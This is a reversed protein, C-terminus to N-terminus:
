KLKILQFRSGVGIANTQNASVRISTISTSTFTSTGYRADLILSSVGYQRNTKSQFVFFDNNTLKINTIGFTKTANVARIFTSNNSRASTASTGDTILSQSYYNAGTNNSNIFLQYNSAGGTANDINNVLMYESDKTINLGTFDIDTTASLVTIDAIVPVARKYIQIRTGAGINNTLDCQIRISSISTATFISSGFRNEFRIDNATTYFKNSQSQYNIFGDNTLKFPILFLTQASSAAVGIAPNNERASTRTTNNAELGQHWYNTRTNNGNFLMFFGVFAPSILNMVFICDDDKTISLGTIDFNTTATQVTLDQVLEYGPIINTFTNKLFADAM